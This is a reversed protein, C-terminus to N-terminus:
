CQQATATCPHQRLQICRAHCCGLIGNHLCHLRLRCWLIILSGCTCAKGQTLGSSPQTSDDSDHLCLRGYLEEQLVGRFPSDQKIHLM